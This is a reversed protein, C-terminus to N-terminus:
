KAEYPEVVIRVRVRHGNGAKAASEYEGGNKLMDAVDADVGSSAAIARLWQSEFVLRLAKIRESMASGDPKHEAWQFNGNEDKYRLRNDLM